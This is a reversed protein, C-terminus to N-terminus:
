KRWSLIVRVPPELQEAPPSKRLSSALNWRNERNGCFGAVASCYSGRLCIFCLQLDSNNYVQLKVSVLFIHVQSVYLVSPIYYKWEFSETHHNVVLHCQLVEYSNLKIRPDTAGGLTLFFVNCLVERTEM